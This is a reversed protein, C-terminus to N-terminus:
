KYELVNVLSYDLHGGPNTRVLGYSNYTISTIVANDYYYNAETKEYPLKTGNLYIDKNADYIGGEKNIIVTMYYGNELAVAIYDIGHVKDPGLSKSFGIEVGSLGYEKESEEVDKYVIIQNGGGMYMSTGYFAVQSGETRFTTYAVPSVGTPDQGFFKCGTLSTLAVFPIFFM